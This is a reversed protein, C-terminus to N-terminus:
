KEKESLQDARDEIFAEAYNEFLGYLLILNDVEEHLATM